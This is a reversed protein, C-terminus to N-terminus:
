NTLDQKKNAPIKNKIDFYYQLYVKILYPIINKAIQVFLIISRSFRSIRRRVHTTPVNGTPSLAGIITHARSRWTRYPEFLYM